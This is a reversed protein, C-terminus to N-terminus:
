YGHGLHRQVIRELILIDDHGCKICQSPNEAEFEHGCNECKWIYKM